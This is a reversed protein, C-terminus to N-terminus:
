LVVLVHKLMAAERCKDKVSDMLGKAYHWPLPPPLAWCATALLVPATQASCALNPTTPPVLPVIPVANHPLIEPPAVTVQHNQPTNSPYKPPTARMASYTM